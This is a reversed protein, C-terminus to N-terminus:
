VKRKLGEEDKQKGREVRGNSSGTIECGALCHQKKVSSTRHEGLVQKGERREEGGWM